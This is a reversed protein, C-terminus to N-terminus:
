AVAVKGMKGWCQGIEFDSKSPVKLPVTNVMIDNIESLEQQTVDKPARILLEDHITALLGFNRGESRKKTCYADIAVMVLKTQIASSGQIVANAKAQREARAIIWFNDRNSELKMDPLRRKRGFMMEVFGNKKCHEVNKDMWEKVKTFNAFFDEVIQEAEKVEIGLNQALTPTAMGYLLGLVVVKSKRRPETDNGCEEIPLNFVRSAVM